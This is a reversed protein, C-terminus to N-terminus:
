HRRFSFLLHGFYTAVVTCGIALVQAPVAPFGVIEVFLPLLGANLAFGGLNVTAFRVFDGWLRGQVRFVFRRHVVFGTVIGVAYALVLAGMYHISDGLSWYFLSFAALCLVTNLGGVVAYRLEQREAAAAVVERLAPKETM